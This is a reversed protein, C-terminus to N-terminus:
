KEPVYFLPYFGGLQSIHVAFGDEVDIGREGTVWTDTAVEIAVGGRGGRLLKVRGIEVASAPARFCVGRVAEPLVPRSLSNVLYLGALM